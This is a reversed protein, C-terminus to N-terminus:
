DRRQDRALDVHDGSRQQARRLALLDHREAARDVGIGARQHHPAPVPPTIGVQRRHAPQPDATLDPRAEEVLKAIGHGIMRRVAAEPHPPLGARALLANVADTLDGASDVLTGDLDFLIADAM